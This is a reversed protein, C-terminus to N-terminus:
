FMRKKPRRMTSLAEECLERKRKVYRVNPSVIDLAGSVHHIVKVPGENKIVVDGTHFTLTMMGREIDSMLMGGSNAMDIIGSHSQLRAIDGYHEYISIEGSHHVIKLSGRHRNIEITSEQYKGNDIITSFSDPNQNSSIVDQLHVFPSHLSLEGHAAFSALHIKGSSSSLKIKQSSYPSYTMEGTLNLNQEITDATFNKVKSSPLTIQLDAPFAGSLSIKFHNPAIEQLSFSIEEQKGSLLSLSAQESSAIKIFIDGGPLTSQVEFTLQPKKSPTVFSSIKTFDFLLHNNAFSSFTSLFAIAITLILTLNKM